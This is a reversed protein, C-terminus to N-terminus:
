IYPNVKKKRFEGRNPGFINELQRRIPLTVRGNEPRYNIKIDHKQGLSRTITLLLSYVEHKNFKIWYHIQRKDSFTNVETFLIFYLIHLLWRNTFQIAYKRFITKFKIYWWWFSINKHDPSKLKSLM